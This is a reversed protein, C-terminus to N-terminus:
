VDAGPGSLQLDGDKTLVYVQWYFYAPFATPHNTMQRAYISIAAVYDSSRNYAFLAENM